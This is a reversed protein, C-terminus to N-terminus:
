SSKERAPASAHFDTQIRRTYQDLLETVRERQGSRFIFGIHHDLNLKWVVEEDTFLAYDPQPHRCLSIVIGACDHRVPPLQYPAGRAVAVEIRAWEGWLNIGSSFEVMEALNAGGVRSATELFYFQGDEKSQIYESHFASYRMHFAKMVAANLKQLAKDERSGFAATCSRFIGGGHAVEMPTSLYQSARSFLIQNDMSLGDVHYVDGPKFQEILYWHREDGLKELVPWLEEASHVKQIGAASAETRPKVVWPPAVRQTFDHIDADHFLASFSPVRIGAETAKMRMALKDRFYRGTTQGMGPIRFHERLFTAKEVDFDDLAAIRDIRRHRMVYALGTAVQDLDWQGRATEEVYFTEDIAEWPWAKGELGKATVLYVLCGERKLSRLFDQGKFYSAICLFSLTKM